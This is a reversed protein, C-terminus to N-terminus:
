KLQAINACLKNKKGSISQYDIRLMKIILTVYGQKADDWLSPVM